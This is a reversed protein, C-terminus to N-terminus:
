AEDVGLLWRQARSLRRWTELRVHRQQDLQSPHERATFYAHVVRRRTGSRNLTGGHRCHANFAVVTGAAVALIREEPHAAEADAIAAVREPAWRHSGPILRTAGNAPGMDDLVWLSNAVHYPPAGVHGQWDAHLGQSGSGPRPERCNLSSLKIARGLVHHMAALLRPHTWLRDFAPDKNVLDHFHIDVGPRAEAAVLRDHVERLRALWAEDILGTLICYGDEDLRQREIATLTWDHVGLSELRRASDADRAATAADYISATMGRVTAWPGHM